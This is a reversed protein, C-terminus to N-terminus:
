DHAAGRESADSHTGGAASASRAAIGSRLHHVLLPHRSERGINFPDYSLGYGTRVVLTDTARWAIGFRPAFLKKSQPLGCDKPISGVGCVLVENTNFDYRELGRDSRTPLPYYEWRVGYSLTVRPSIQWRDRVYLSYTRTRTELRPITLVNKGAERALGLLFSAFANYDNAAPGGRLTTTDGRVNFGGAPGGIGGPPTRL